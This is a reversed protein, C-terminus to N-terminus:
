LVVADPDPFDTKLRPLAEVGVSVYQVVEPGRDRSTAAALVGGVAGGASDGVRFTFCPVVVEGATLEQQVVDFVNAVFFQHEGGDLM